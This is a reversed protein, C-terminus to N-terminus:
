NINVNIENILDFTNIMEKDFKPCYYETLKKNSIKKYFNCFYFNGLNSENLFMYSKGLIYYFFFENKILNNKKFILLKNELIKKDKIEILYNLYELKLYNNKYKLINEEYIESVSNISISKKYLEYQGAKLMEDDDDLDFRKGLNLNKFFNNYKTNKSNMFYKAIVFDYKTDNLILNNSNSIRKKANNIREKIAPHTNRYHNKNGIVELRKLFEITSNLDLNSQQFNNLMINDAELEMERSNYLYDQIVKENLFLSTGFIVDSNGSAIGALIPIISFINNSKKAKKREIKKIFIHNERIHGLEHLIVAFLGNLDKTEKLMGLNIYIKNNDIVYANPTSENVLRVEIDSNNTYKKILNYTLNEFIQDRIIEKANVGICNIILLIKVLLLTKM